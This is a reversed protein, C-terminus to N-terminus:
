AAARQGEVIERAMSDAIRHPPTGTAASREFIQQLRRRIIPLHNRTRESDYAPSLAEQAINILGGANAVFDPTYLIGREHLRDGHEPRHLQNNASGAVIGCRLRPLTEDNIVAGLACPAFVDCEVAPIDGVPVSRAGFRSEAEAVRAKDIDAVVLEAGGEFLRGALAMGVNGLGQVAVRLGALDSAGLKHRAAGEIAMLVGDATDPSPDGSSGQEDRGLVFRTERGAVAMDAPTTGVDEGTYYRGKLSEVARGFARFLSPSKQTRPDGWIVSKGGGLPLDAMAAKFTMGQSLRLADALAEGESAYNWMRCGGVAPGLRTNHIAIIARLGAERDHFHCIEEHDAFDVADFLNMAYM